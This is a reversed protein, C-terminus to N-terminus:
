NITRSKGSQDTAAAQDASSSPTASHTLAVDQLACRYLHIAFSCNACLAFILKNTPLCLTDGAAILQIRLIMISICILKMAFIEGFVNSQKMHFTTKVSLRFNISKLILLEPLIYM